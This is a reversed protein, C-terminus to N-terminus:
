IQWKFNKIIQNCQHLNHTETKKHFRCTLVVATKEKLFIVQRLQRRNKPNLIDMLFGMQQNVNIPKSNLVQFGFKPYDKIWKKMYSKLTRKSKLQDVRVTLAAQVGFDVHPSRYETLIYPHDKDNLTHIWDTKEASIKFGLPSFFLGKGTDLTKSSSSLPIPASFATAGLFFSLLTVFVSPKVLTM